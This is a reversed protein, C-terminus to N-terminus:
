QPTTTTYIIQSDEIKALCPLDKPLIDLSKAISSKLEDRLSVETSRDYSQMVYLVKRM